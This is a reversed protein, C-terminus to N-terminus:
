NNVYGYKRLASGSFNTDRGRTLTRRQDLLDALSPSASRVAQLWAAAYRQSVQEATVGKPNKKKNFKLKKDIHEVQVAHFM